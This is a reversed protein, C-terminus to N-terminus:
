KAAAEKEELKKRFLELPKRIQGSHPEMTAAKTQNEVAAAFDGKAFYCHALTDYYGGYDPKLEISKKSYAIARDIDGETNAILWAYQNYPASEDPTIVIEARESAATKKIQDVIKKRFEPTPNPLRYCAILVDIDGPDVALAKELYEKQKAADGKERWHCAFFFEMRARIEALPRNAFEPKVIKNKEINNVMTELAQAAQLDKGQDHFMESLGYHATVTYDNGAAGTAIVQRYEQEAWKFLGRQRLNYATMLHARLQEAGAGPHLKLARQAAEDASDGKGQEKCAQALAYLLDPDQAFRNTFRAALESILAWVKEEALWKVLEPLSEPDAQLAKDLHEKQKVADGKEHWHCAFFFEMRARVEALTRNAFKPKVIKNKEINNVMADLTQAAQLDKGEDHLMESLGYHATATYDHGAAGTTIVHRYEQEAWKFLGRQRLKYASMLHARLQEAGTGAHLKVARRAAEDALDGKGQEKYAQALAYLLNSDRAFRSAFRAAVESILTWAKEETLWRVLEALSKPDGKELDILKRMSALSQEKHGLKSLWNIQYRILAVVVERRSQEPSRRLTAQEEEVLKGWEVLAKEPDDRFQLSTYLWGAGPRSSNALNKKLVEALDAQPPGDLSQEGLIQVAAFKSLIPSREFRVLRCLAAIGMKDPLIALRQMREVRGNTDLLEYGKMCTKVEPPDSDVTWQVRMLRLLYKVRTAVELDEHTQVATLADFAKFGLKALENQAQQRVHYDADGLQVILQDIKANMAAPEDDASLGATTCSLVALALVLLAIPQPSTWHETSHNDIGNSICASFM